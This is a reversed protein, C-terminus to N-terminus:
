AGQRLEDGCREATMMVTTNTPAAPIDPMISADVVYLGDVGHM